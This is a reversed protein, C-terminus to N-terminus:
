PEEEQEMLRKMEYLNEEVLSLERKQNLLEQKKNELDYTIKREYQGLEVRGQEITIKLEEDEHWADYLRDFLRAGRQNLEFFYQEMEEHESLAQKNQMQSEQVHQLRNNLQNMKDVM